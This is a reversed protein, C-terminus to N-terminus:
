NSDVSRFIISTENRPSLRGSRDFNMRFLEKRLVAIMLMDSVRYGKPVPDGDNPAFSHLMRSQYDAAYARPSSMGEGTRRTVLM